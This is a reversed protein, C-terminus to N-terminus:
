IRGEMNFMKKECWTWTTLPHGRPNQVEISQSKSVHYMDLIIGHTSQILFFPLIVNINM